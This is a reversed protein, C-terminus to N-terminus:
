LRHKNLFSNVQLVGIINQTNNEFVPIRSYHQNKVFQAIEDVPTHADLMLVKDLPVMIDSAVKSSFEVASHVLAQTEPELVGEDEITEIINLLEEETVTTEQKEAGFLKSIGNSLTTFLFSVPTLLKVLFTLSGSFSLACSESRVKGFSKPLMEGLLYVIVTTVLTGVWVYETDFKSEVFLTTLTACSAHLVNTGILITSLSKEYRDTIWLARKAKRSGEEALSRIRVKNMATYATEAAAFYVCSILCFIYLLIIRWSDADM